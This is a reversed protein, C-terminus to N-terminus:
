LRSLLATRNNIPLISNIDVDNRLCFLYINKDKGFLKESIKDNLLVNNIESSHGKDSIILSLFPTSIQTYVLMEGIARLGVSSIYRNVLILDKSGDYKRVLCIFDCTFDCKSVKGIDCLDRDNLKSLNQGKFLKILELDQQKSIFNIVWKEVHKTYEAKNM